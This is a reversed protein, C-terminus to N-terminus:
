MIENKPFQGMVSSHPFHLYGARRARNALRAM